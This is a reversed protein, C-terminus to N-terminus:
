LLRVDCTERHCCNTDLDNATRALGSGCIGAGPRAYHADRPARKGRMQQMGSNKTVDEWTIRVAICCVDHTCGEVRWGGGEVRWGGNEVEV